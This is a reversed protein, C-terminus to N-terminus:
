RIFQSLGLNFLADLGSIMLAVLATLFIVFGTYTLTQRPTPWIVKRLESRVERFYKRSREASRPTTGKAEM